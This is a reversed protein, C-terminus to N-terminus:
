NRARIKGPFINHHYKQKTTRNVLFILLINNMVKWNQKGTTEKEVDQQDRFTAIHRTIAVNNEGILATVVADKEM